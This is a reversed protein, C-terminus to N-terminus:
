DRAYPSDRLRSAIPVRAAITTGGAVSTEIKLTGGVLALREQMGVLGLAEVRILPEASSTPTPRCTGAALRRSKSM